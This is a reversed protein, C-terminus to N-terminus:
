SSIVNLAYEYMNRVEIYIKGSVMHVEFENIYSSGYDCTECGGYSDTDSVIEYIGGDKMPLLIAM